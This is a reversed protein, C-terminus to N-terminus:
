SVSWTRTHFRFHQSVVAGMERDVLWVNTTTAIHMIHHAFDQSTYTFTMMHTSINHTWLSTDLYTYITILQCVGQELAWRNTRPHTGSEWLRAAAFSMARARQQSTEQLRESVLRLYFCFLILFLLMRSTIHTKLSDWAADVMVLVYLLSMGMRLLCPVSVVTWM